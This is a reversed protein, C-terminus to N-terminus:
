VISDEETPKPKIQSTSRVKRPSATKHHDHNNHNNNDIHHRNNNNNNHTSHHRSVSRIEKMSKSRRDKQIREKRKPITSPPENFRSAIKEIAEETRRRAEPSTTRRSHNYSPAQSVSQQSPQQNLLSQNSEKLKITEGTTSHVEHSREGGMEHNNGGLSSEYSMMELRHSVFETTTIGILFGIGCAAWWCGNSPFDGDGICVAVFHLLFSTFIYDAMNRSNQVTATLPLALSAMALILSFFSILGRRTFFSFELSSFVQTWWFPETAVLNVSFVIYLYLSYFGVQSIFISRLVHWPKLELVEDSGYKKDVFLVIVILIMLAGFFVLFYWWDDM